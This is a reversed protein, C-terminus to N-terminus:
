NTCSNTRQQYFSKYIRCLSGDVYQLPVEVLVKYQYSLIEDKNVGTSIFRVM